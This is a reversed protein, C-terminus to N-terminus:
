PAPRTSASFLAFLKLLSFLLTPHSPILPCL